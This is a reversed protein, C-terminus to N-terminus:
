CIVSSGDWRTAVSGALRIGSNAPLLDIGACLREIFVLLKCVAAAAIGYARGNEASPYDLSNIHLSYSSRESGSFRTDLRLGLASWSASTVLGASVQVM